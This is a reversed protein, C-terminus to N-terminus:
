HTAKANTKSPPAPAKAKDPRPLDKGAGPPAAPPADLAALAERAKALAEPNAQEAPLSELTTVIAARAAREAAADKRAVALDAALALVRTKCPGYALSTATTVYPVAEDLKGSKYLVWALRYPPDYEAPLDAASKQLAPVLDLGRGLYVYVEARPWNYTMAAFPTAAKAAAEDVLTIQAAATARAAQSDGLLDQLTRLNMMADSRDDVSLQAAPDALLSTLRAAAAARFTKVRAPEAEAFSSACELTLVLFDTASAAVGTENLASEGLTLCGAQDGARRYAGALSVLADPRRPWTAPAAALAAKYSSVAAPYDKIVVARDAQRLLDDASGTTTAASAGRAGHDLFDLFQAKSAAGVFRAQVSEDASSIVYFTPWAGPPMKAVAKANIERDTDLAVLVFRRSAEGVQADQFVTSKMSLCTHCWPAWLDVVLPQKRARACALAADYDDHFWRMPGSAEEHACAKDPEAAASGAAAGSAPDGAPARMPPESRRCAPLSLLAAFSTALTLALVPTRM